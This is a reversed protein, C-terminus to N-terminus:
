SPKTPWTVDNISSYTKTIDRLAQRYDIQEQSMDPTDQYAWHDTEKLRRDREDRLMMTVTKFRPDPTETETIESM